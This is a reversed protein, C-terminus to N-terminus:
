NKWLEKKWVMFKFLNILIYNTNWSINRDYVSCLNKQIVCDCSM